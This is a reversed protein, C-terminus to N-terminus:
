TRRARALVGDRGNAFHWIAPRAAPAHELMWREHPGPFPELAADATIGVTASRPSSLRSGGAQATARSRV